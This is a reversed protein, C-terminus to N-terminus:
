WNSSSATEGSVLTVKRRSRRAASLAHAVDHTLCYPLPLTCSPVAAKAAAASQRAARVCSDAAAGCKCSSAHQQTHAAPDNILNGLLSLGPSLLLLSHLLGKRHLLHARLLAALVTQAKYVPSFHAAFPLWACGQAHRM